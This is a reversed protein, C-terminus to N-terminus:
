KHPMGAKDACIVEFGHSILFRYTVERSDLDDDVFLIRPTLSM